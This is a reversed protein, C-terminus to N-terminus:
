EAVAAGLSNDELAALERPGGQTWGASHSLYEAASESSAGAGPLSAAAALGLTADRVARAKEAEAALVSWDPIEDDWEILTSVPGTLRLLDRYLDWVADIVHGRHTDIIYKGLHTHGALHVQVIREHPVSRIFERADFGHNYASVYVNNVDFMLGIDAREAIESIFQWETM